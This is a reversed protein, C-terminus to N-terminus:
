SVLPPPEKLLKEPINKRGLTLTGTRVDNYYITLFDYKKDFIQYFPYDDTIISIVSKHNDLLIKVSIDGIENICDSCNIPVEKIYLKPKFSYELIQKFHQKDNIIKWLHQVFETLIQPTIFLHYKGLGLSNLFALLYFYDSRNYPKGGDKSEFQEVFKTNKIKDYHGVVLIFLPATDLCIGRRLLKIQDEYGTVDYTSVVYNYSDFYM